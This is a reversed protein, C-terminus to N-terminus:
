YIYVTVDKLKDEDYGHFVLEQQTKDIEGAIYLASWSGKPVVRWEEWLEKNKKLLKAVRSKLAAGYLRKFRM